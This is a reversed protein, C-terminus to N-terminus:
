ISREITEAINKLFEIDGDPPIQDASGVIFKSDGSFTGLLKETHEVIDKEKWPECFMAGPIGGWIITEASAACNRIESLKIDGVPQPTISEVGDFGCSALKPLLGKVAGDLHVVAYKNQRHIEELRETYHKRMFKDFYATSASSDLNDCFHFLEADSKLAIEFSPLIAREITDLTQKVEDEADMLFYITNMVGCWDALLAPLPSRSLPCIPVGSEGLFGSLEGYHDSDAKEFYTKEYIDNLIELDKINKVAYETHAWCYSQEIYEWQESITGKSSKWRRIRKNGNEETDTEV